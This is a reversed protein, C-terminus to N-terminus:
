GNIHGEIHRIAEPYDVMLSKILKNQSKRRIAPTVNMRDAKTEPFHKIFSDPKFCEVITGLTGIEDTVYEYGKEMLKISQDMKNIDIMPSDATVRVAIDTDYTNLANAYGIWVDEDSSHVYEIGEQELYNRLTTDQPPVVYIINDDYYDSQKIRRNLLEIVYEGNIEEFCKNPFRESGQRAQVIFLM